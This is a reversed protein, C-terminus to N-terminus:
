PKATATYTVQNTYTGPKQSEPVDLRYQIDTDDYSNVYADKDHITTASGPFAAYEFNPTTGWKSDLGTGNTLTFGFGKTTGENWVDPSAITGSVAAITTVADTHRLAHDQEAALLYGAADTYVSVTSTATESSGPTISPISVNASDLSITISHELQAVYGANFTYTTGTGPGIFPEGGSDTMQYATGATDGGFSNITAPSLKYTTGSAEFAMATSGSAVVIALAAILRATMNIRMFIPM